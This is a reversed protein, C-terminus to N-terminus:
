TILSHINETNTQDARLQSTRFFHKGNLSRFLLTIKLKVNANIFRIMKITGIKILQTRFLYIIIILINQLFANILLFRFSVTNFSM